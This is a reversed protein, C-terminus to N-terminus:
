TEKKNYQVTSMELETSNAVLEFINNSEKNNCARKGLWPVAKCTDNLEILTQWNRM